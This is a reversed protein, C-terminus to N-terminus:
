RTDRTEGITSDSNLQADRPLWYCALAQDITPYHDSQARTWRLWAVIASVQAASFQDFCLRAKSGLTGGGRIRAIRQEEAQPTLLICLRSAPDSCELMGRVDAILYAPLYFQLARDSFFTLATGWGDPARDLFAPELVRWGSKGVFERALAAREEGYSAAIPDDDGPYPVASSAAAMREILIQGDLSDAHM